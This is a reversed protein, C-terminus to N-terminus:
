DAERPGEFMPNWRVHLFSELLSLVAIGFAAPMLIDIRDTNARIWDGATKNDLGAAGVRRQNSLISGSLTSLASGTYHQYTFRPGSNPGVKGVKLAREDLFFSYVAMKGLPLAKAKHPKALIEVDFQDLPVTAHALVAVQAFDKLADSVLEGLM